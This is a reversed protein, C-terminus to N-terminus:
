GCLELDKGVEELRRTPMYFDNSSCYYFVRRRGVPLPSSYLWVMDFTHRAAVKRQDGIHVGRKLSISFKQQGEIDIM